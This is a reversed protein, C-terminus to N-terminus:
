HDSARYLVEGRTEVFALPIKPNNIDGGKKWKETWKAYFPEMTKPTLRYIAVLEIGDYVAFIWDVAKYKKIIAPNL